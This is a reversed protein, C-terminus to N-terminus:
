DKKQGDGGEGEGLVEGEGQRAQKSAEERREGEGGAEM